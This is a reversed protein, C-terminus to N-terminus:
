RGMLQKLIEIFKNFKFGSKQSSIQINKFIKSYKLLMKDTNKSYPYKHIPYDLLVILFLWNLLEELSERHFWIINKHQNVGILDMVDNDKFFIDILKNLERKKDLAKPWIQYRTLVKILKIYKISNEKYTGLQLFIESIYEDISWYEVLEINQIISHESTDTKLCNVFIWSFLIFINSINSNIHFIM